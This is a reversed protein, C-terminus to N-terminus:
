FCYVSSGRNSGLQQIEGWSSQWMQRPSLCQPHQQSCPCRWAVNLSSTWWQCFVQWSHALGLSFLLHCSIDWWKQWQFPVKKQAATLTPVARHPLGTLSRKQEMVASLSVPAAAEQLSCFQCHHNGVYVCTDAVERKLTKKELINERGQMPRQKGELKRKLTLQEEEGDPKRWESGAGVETFSIMTLADLWAGETYCRTTALVGLNKLRNM